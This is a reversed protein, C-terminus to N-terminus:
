IFSLFQSLNGLINELGNLGTLVITDASGNRLTFLTIIIIIIIIIIIVVHTNNNNNTTTTTTTTSRYYDDDDDDNDDDNDDDDHSHSYCYLCWRLGKPSFNNMILDVM